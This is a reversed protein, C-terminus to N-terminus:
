LQQGVPAHHGVGDLYSVSRFQQEIDSVRRTASLELRFNHFMRGVSLEFASGISPDLDYFWRYGSPM